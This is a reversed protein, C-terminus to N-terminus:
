KVDIWAWWVCFAFGFFLLSVFPLLLLPILRFQFHICAFLFEHQSALSSRLGSFLPSRFDLLSIIDKASVSSAFSRM